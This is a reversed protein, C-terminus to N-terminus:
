KAGDSGVVERTTNKVGDIIAGPNRVTGFPTDLEQASKPAAVGAPACFAKNTERLGGLGAVSMTEREETRQKSVVKDERMLVCHDEGYYWANSGDAFEQTKSPGGQMSQVVQQSSMGPYIANFNPRPGSACATVAAVSAALL